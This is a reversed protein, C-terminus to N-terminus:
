SGNMCGDSSRHPRMESISDSTTSRMERVIPPGFKSRPPYRNLELKVKSRPDQMGVWVGRGEKRVDGRVSERLGLVKTYFRVSRPLNTVWIGVCHLRM